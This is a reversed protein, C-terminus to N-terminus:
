QPIGEKLTVNIEGQHVHVEAIETEDGWGNLEKDMESLTRRLEAVTRPQEIRFSGGMFVEVMCERFCGAM